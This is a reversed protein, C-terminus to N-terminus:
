TKEACNSKRVFAHMWDVRARLILPEPAGAEPVVRDIRVAGVLSLLQLTRAGSLCDLGVQRCVSAFDGESSLADFFARENAALDDTGREIRTLKVRPDEALALLKFLEDRRQLGEGILRQTPLSLRVVNDPTVEGEWFHVTGATYSFLSRVIDEVQAKVGDWLGRPTLLGKQVLVKGFREARSHSSEADRLQELTIVGSRLLCEGIRDVIQNSSAFVVEGRHLYVSKEHSERRFYLFGSKGSNHILSLVDALPFARVEASLVLDRDWPVAAPFDSCGRELLLATGSSHLVRIAEGSGLGLEQRLEDSLAVEGGFAAQASGSM